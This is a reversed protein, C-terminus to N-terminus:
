QIEAWCVLVRANGLDMTAADEAFVVLMQGPAMTYSGDLTFVAAEPAYFCNFGPRVATKGTCVRMEGAVGKCMLNFDTAKGVCHTEEGGSFRYPADLPGMTIGPKGPHTLTFGGIIPTIYREVGPLPTFDSEPLDVTASSVRFSFERKGYDAGQPWIFLETTTGGSWTSVRYDAKSLHLIRM